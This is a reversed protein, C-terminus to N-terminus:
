KTAAEAPKESEQSLRPDAAVITITEVTYYVTDSQGSGPSGGGGQATVPPNTYAKTVLVDKTMRTGDSGAQIGDFWLM